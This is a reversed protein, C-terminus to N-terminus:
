QSESNIVLESIENAISSPMLLGWLPIEKYWQLKLSTKSTRVFVFDCLPVNELSYGLFDGLPVTM